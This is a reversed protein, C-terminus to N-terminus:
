IGRQAFVVIVPVIPCCKDFLFETTEWINTQGSAGVDTMEPPKLLEGEYIETNQPFSECQFTYQHKYIYVSRWFYNDIINNVQQLRVYCKNLEM